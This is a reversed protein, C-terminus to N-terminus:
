ARRPHPPIAARRKGEKLALPGMDRVPPGTINRQAMRSAMPPNVEATPEAASTHNPSYAPRQGMMMVNMIKPKAFAKEPLRTSSPKDRV